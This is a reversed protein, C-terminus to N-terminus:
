PVETWMDDIIVPMTLEAIRFHKGDQELYAPQADLMQGSQGLLDINRVTEGLTFGGAYAAMLTCTASLLDPDIDNEPKSDLSKYIRGSFTVVGSVAALGSGRPYPTIRSWWLAYSLGLGPANRPEHGVPTRSFVSLRGATSLMAAFLDSVAASNFALSM